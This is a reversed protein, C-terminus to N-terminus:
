KIIRTYWIWLTIKISNKTWWKIQNTDASEEFFTDVSHKGEHTELTEIKVEEVIAMNHGRNSCTIEHRNLYKMEDTLLKIVQAKPYGWLFYDCSSPNTLRSPWPIGGNLSIFHGPFITEFSRYIGMGRHYNSHSSSCLDMDGGQQWRNRGRLPNINRPYWKALFQLPHCTCLTSISLNISLSLSLSLSLFFYLFRSFFLPLSNTPTKHCWLVRPKNIAM